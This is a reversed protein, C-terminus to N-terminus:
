LDLMRALRPNHRKCHEIARLKARAARLTCGTRAAIRAAQADRALAATTRRDIM